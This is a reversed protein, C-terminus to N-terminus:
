LCCRLEQTVKSIIAGALGCLSHSNHSCYRQESGLCFAAFNTIVQSHASRSFIIMKGETFCFVLVLSAVVFMQSDEPQVALLSQSTFNRHGSFCRNSLRQLKTCQFHVGCVTRQLRTCGPLFSELPLVVM